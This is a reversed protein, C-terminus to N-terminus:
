ERLLRGVARWRWRRDSREPTPCTWPETFSFVWPVVNEGRHMRGSTDRTAQSPPAPPPRHRRRDTAPEHWPGAPFWGIAGASTWRRGTTCTWRYLIQRPWSR